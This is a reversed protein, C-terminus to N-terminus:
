IKECSYQFYEFHKTKMRKGYIYILIDCHFKVANRINYLMFKHENVNGKKWHADQHIKDISEFFANMQKQLKKNSRDQDFYEHPM